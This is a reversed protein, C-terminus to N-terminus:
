MSLYNKYERVTTEEGHGPYLIIDDDLAVVKKLSAVLDKVNGGPLDFRGYGGGAFAVDGVFACKGIIYAVSGPTHGPFEHIAIKEEGFTLEDDETVTEFDGYYGFDKFLFLSYCNKHSDKLADKDKEAIVVKANTNKVWADIELFHDFHGHTLLIYKIDIGQVAESDYPSSPDIVIGEGKSIVLYSNSAYGVKQVIKKIEIM